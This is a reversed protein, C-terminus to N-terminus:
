PRRLSLLKQKLRLWLQLTIVTADARLFPPVIVVKRGISEAAHSSMPLTRNGAMALGFSSPMLHTIRPPLGRVRLKFGMGFRYTRSRRVPRGAKSPSSITPLGTAGSTQFVDDDPMMDSFPSGVKPKKTNSTTASSELAGKM